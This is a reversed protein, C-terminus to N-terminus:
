WKGLGRGRHAPIVATGQQSIVHPIKPDYTLETFGATDGTAEDIVLALRRERGAERRSRDWERILEPTHHWDEMGSEGRPATNMTDYAVIVNRVLADPVDADIWELRYGGPRLASWERVLDRDLERLDLQNVDARLTGRSGNGCGSCKPGRGRAPRSRRPRCPRITRSTSVSCRTACRRSRPSSRSLRARSTSSSSRSRALPRRCPDQMMANTAGRAGDIEAYLRVRSTALARGVM